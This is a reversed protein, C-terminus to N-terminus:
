GGFGVSANLFYPGIRKDMGTLHHMRSRATHAIVCDRIRLARVLRKPSKPLTRAQQKAAAVRLLRSLAACCAARPSVSCLHLQYVLHAAGLICEGGATFDASSLAATAALRHACVKSLESSWLNTTLIRNEPVWHKYVWVLRDVAKKGAETKTQM